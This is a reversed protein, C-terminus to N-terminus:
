ASMEWVPIKLLLTDPLNVLHNDDDDDDHTIHCHPKNKTLHKMEKHGTQPTIVYSIQLQILASQLQIQATKSSKRCEHRGECSRGVITATM